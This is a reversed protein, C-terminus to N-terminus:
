LRSEEKTKVLDKGCFMCIRIYRRDPPLDKGAYLRWNKCRCWKEPPLKIVKPKPLLTPERWDMDDYLLRGCRPCWMIDYNEDSACDHKHTGQGVKTM